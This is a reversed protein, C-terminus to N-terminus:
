IRKVKNRKAKKMEADADVIELDLLQNAQEWLGLLGSDMYSIYDSFEGLKGKLRVIQEYCERGASSDDEFFEVDRFGSSGVPVSGVIPV